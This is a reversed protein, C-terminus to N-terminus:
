LEREKLREKEEVGKLRMKEGDEMQSSIKSVLSNISDNTNKLTSGQEVLTENIESLTTM